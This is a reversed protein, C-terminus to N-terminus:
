SLVILVAYFPFLYLLGFSSFIIVKLFVQQALVLRGECKGSTAGLLPYTYDRLKELAVPDLKKVVEIMGEDGGDIKTLTLDLDTASISLLSTRSTSLKFGAQFGDKYAGSGESPVLKQCAEYYSRIALESAQNKMLHYHEDLWGQLPEEEIDATIKRLYFKVRGLKTSSPKKPKSTEKKIPFILQTKAATVLKLARLMEEFSDDIARLELRYPLSIHVNLGQIVWDWTISPLKADSSGISASPIRSIQM